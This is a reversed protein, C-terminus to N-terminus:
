AGDDHARARASRLTRVRAVIISSSSSSSIIIITIVIIIIIIFMSIITTVIVGFRLPAVGGFRGLGAVHGIQLGAEFCIYIYIYIICVYM